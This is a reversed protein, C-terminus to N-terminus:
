GPHGTRTEKEIRYGVGWVNQIMRTQRDDDGIKERLRAIHVMVASADNKLPEEGRVRGYIQEPTFIQGRSGALLLLIDYETRTLRIETGEAAVRRASPEITLRGVRITNETQETRAAGEGGKSRSEGGLERYRRLLAGVRASLESLSFPKVLYDDAGMRLGIVKDADAARASLLLIPVNSVARLARCVELGDKEPMMIDLLALSIRSRKWIELAERGNAATHVTYGELELYTRVVDLIDPDDDVVLLECEQNM